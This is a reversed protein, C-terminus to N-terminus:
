RPPRSTLTRGDTWADPNVIPLAPERSLDATCPRVAQPGRACLYHRGSGSARVLELDVPECTAGAAFAPTLIAGVAAGNLGPRLRSDYLISAIRNDLASPSWRVSRAGESAGDMLSSGCTSHQLGIAHGLEHAITRNRGIQLDDDAIVVIGGLIAGPRTPDITLRTLGVATPDVHDVGLVHAFDARHVFHVDVDGPRDSVAITLGTVFGWRQAAEALRQLDEPTPDGTVRLAPNRTWRQLVPHRSPVAVAPTLALELFAARETPTVAITKRRDLRRGLVETGVAARDAHNAAAAPAHQGHNARATADRGCGSGLILLTAALVGLRSRKVDWPRGM